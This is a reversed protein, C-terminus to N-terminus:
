ARGGQPGSFVRRARAVREIDDEPIRIVSGLRFAGRFEELHDRVWDQSCELREAATAISVSRFPRVPESFSFGARALVQLAAEVDSTVTLLRAM